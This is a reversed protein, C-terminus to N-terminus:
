RLLRFRPSRRATRGRAPRHQPPVQVLHTATWARLGTVQLAFVARPRPPFSRPARRQLRPWHGRRFYPCAARHVARLFRGEPTDDGGIRAFASRGDTPWLSAASIPPMPPPMSAACTGRFCSQRCHQPLFLQRLEPHAEGAPGPNGQGAAAGRKAAMPCPGRGSRLHAQRLRRARRGCFRPPRWQALRLREQHPQRSHAAGRYLPAKLTRACVEPYNRISALRWDVLWPRPQALDIIPLPNFAPPM